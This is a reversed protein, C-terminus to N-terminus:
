NVDNIKSSESPGNTKRKTKVAKTTRVTNTAEKSATDSPVSQDGKVEKLSESNEKQNSAKALENNNAILVEEESKIFQFIPSEPKFRTRNYRSVVEDFNNNLKKLYESKPNAENRLVSFTGFKM